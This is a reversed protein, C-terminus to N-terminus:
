MVKLVTDQTPILAQILIPLIARIVRIAKMAEMIVIVIEMHALHIHVIRATLGIRATLDIRQLHM